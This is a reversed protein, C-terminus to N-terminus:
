PLDAGQEQDGEVDVFASLPVLTCWEKRGAISVKQRKVAGALRGLAQQWVGGQWRQERLLKSLGEHSNAVALFLGGPYARDPKYESTKRQGGDDGAIWSAVLKMGAMQLRRQGRQSIDLSQDGGGRGFALAKLIWLSVPEPEAGGSAPLPSQSIFKACLDGESEDEAKEALQSADLRRAWAAAMEDDPLDNFLLCDACGLLTGFQDQMRADHGHHSLWDKYVAITDDLRGVQEVMRRLLARGLAQNRAPDMKPAAGGELPNLELMALRSRDAPTLPPVLISSFLFSSRMTFDQASHDSSGRGMLAGSAALRALDIIAQVRRNDAGAELEDIEIPITRMKLTQRVWAETINAASILANGLLQKILKQLTSKGTGRGGTIWTAPRWELWGCILSAGIHGLLLMPDIGPDGDGSSGREWNWTGLMALVERAVEASATETAPRQIAEAAPYVLGDILGPKVWPRRKDAGTWIYDGCHLILEGNDGRHAGAGRVKGAPSWLGKRACAAMLQRGAEEPKWGTINPEEECTEKNVKPKGYRPWLTECLDSRRGFLSELTKKEHEKPKVERIQCLEDLYFCVGNVTGLPVVPCGDPLMNRRPTYGQGDDGHEAADNRRDAGVPAPADGHLSVVEAGAMMEAM